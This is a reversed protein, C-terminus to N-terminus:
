NVMAFQRAFEDMATKLAKELEEDIAQRSEIAEILEPKETYFFQHLSKEFAQVQELEIPKLYGYKAAFLSLVQEAVAVIVGIAAIKFILEVNM